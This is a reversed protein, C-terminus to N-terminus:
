WSLYPNCHNGQRIPKRQLWSESVNGFREDLLLDPIFAAELFRTCYLVVNEAILATGALPIGPNHASAGKEPDGSAAVCWDDTDSEQVVIAAMTASGGCTQLIVDCMTKLLEDVNLMSSIVQSSVLIAHLDIMDLAPLGAGDEGQMNMSGTWAGTREGKLETMSNPIQTIDDGEEGMPRYQTPNADAVFDTQVSADATWHNRTPGHLLLYHEEEIAASVGVAGLQRYFGVAELLAARASRRAKRRLFLGAMLYNGLAEEFVFNYEAAHDLAEEYCRVAQGHDDSLEAIQAQLLTYWAFYNVRSVSTWDLIKKLCTRLEELVHECETAFSDSQSRPDHMKRLLRGTLALGYFLLVLRSNRSSWFMPLHELCNKGLQVARDYHNYLFLPIIELSEYLLSSRNSQYTKSALWSKYSPGNHHQGDSMVENPDKFNTKGQLARSLQRVALLLSGGRTDFYWNPVEECSYQCFSELDVVNESAFFKVLASMGYSLIISTRDGALAAYEIAHEMQSLSAAMPQHSHGILIPYLTLGRALSFSDQGQYLLDQSTNGLEVAFKAMNFRSLSITALNLFALGSQPFAGRSLHMEVMVLSLHYYRLCDSWWSAAITESLVAGISALTPDATPPTQALMSPDISRIQATVEEFKQDCKEYTPNEDLLVGLASLSEKLCTLAAAAEGNAAYIRSQLVYAPAKDIASKAHAFVTTLTQTAAHHHGIFAQCEASRLYLQLTENYSVDEKGDEWADEQLLELAIIYYKAATPRASGETAARACDILLQRYPARLKVRRKIMSVAECVHMATSEREHSEGSYYKMLTQAIMFHMRQTSHCEKLDAAAHIYRDHAFRFIDDSESQVIIYAQVAAQLGDICQGNTYGKHRLKIENEDEVDKASDFEGGMLQCIFDFSFSNGLLAAWALLSRSAEPLEDLRHTIFSTGLVDYTQEDQFQVFIKDLDFHWRSDRYDYWICRKRYAASLMERMYFPNGGSKSQIVLALSIIENRPRCM